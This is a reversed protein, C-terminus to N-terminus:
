RSIGLSGAIRAVVPPKKRINPYKEMEDIKSQVVSPILSDYPWGMPTQKRVKAAYGGLYSEKEVITVEYGMKAADIAASIGSM